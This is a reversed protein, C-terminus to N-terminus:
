KLYIRFDLIFLILRSDKFIGRGQLLTLLRDCPTTYKNSSDNRCSNENFLFRNREQKIKQPIFGHANWRDSPLATVRIVEM